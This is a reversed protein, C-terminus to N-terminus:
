EPLPSGLPNPAADPQSPDDCEIWKGDVMAGPEVWECLTDLYALMKADKYAHMKRTALDRLVRSIDQMLPGAMLVSSGVLREVKAVDHEADLQELRASVDGLTFAVILTPGTGSQYTVSWVSMNDIRDELADAPDM